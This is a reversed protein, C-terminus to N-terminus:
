LGTDSALHHDDCPEIEIRGDHRFSDNARFLGYYSM